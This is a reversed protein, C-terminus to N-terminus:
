TWTPEPSWRTPDGVAGAAPEPGSAARHRVPLQGERQPFLEGRPATRGRHPFGGGAALRRGKGPFDSLLPGSAAGHAAWPGPLDCAPGRGGGPRHPHPVAPHLRVRRLRHGHTGPSDRGDGPGGPGRLFLGRGPRVRRKFHSCHRRLLQREGGPEGGQGPRRM